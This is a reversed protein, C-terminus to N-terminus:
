QSPKMTITKGDLWDQACDVFSDNYSVPHVRYLQVAQIRYIKWTGDKQRLNVANGPRATLWTRKSDILRAIHEPRDPEGPRCIFSLWPEFELIFQLEGVIRREDGVRNEIHHSM